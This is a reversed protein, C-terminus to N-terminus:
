QHHGHVHTLTCAGQICDCTPCGDQGCEYGHHCSASCKFTGRCEIPQSSNQPSGAFSHIINVRLAGIVVFIM